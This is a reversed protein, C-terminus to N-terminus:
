VIGRIGSLDEARGEGGALVLDQPHDRVEASDLQEVHSRLYRAIHIQAAGQHDVRVNLDPKLRDAALGLEGRSGAAVRALDLAHDLDGLAAAHHERGQAVSNRDLGLEM